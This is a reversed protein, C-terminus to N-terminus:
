TTTITRTQIIPVHWPMNQQALKWTWAAAIQSNREEPTHHKPTSTTDSVDLTSLNSQFTSFPNVISAIDCGLIPNEYKSEYNCFAVTLEDTQRNARRGTRGYAVVWGGIPRIKMFNSM